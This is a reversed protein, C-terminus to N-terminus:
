PKSVAYPPFRLSYLAMIQQYQMQRFAEYDLYKEAQNPHLGLLEPHNLLFKEYTHPFHSSHLDFHPAQFRKNNVPIFTQIDRFNVENPEAISRTSSPIDRRIKLAQMANIRERDLSDNSEVSLDEPSVRRSAESIEISKESKVDEESEKESIDVPEPSKSASATSNHDDDQNSNSRKLYPVCSGNYYVFKKPVLLKQDDFKFGKKLIIKGENINEYALDIDGKTSKVLAYLIPM